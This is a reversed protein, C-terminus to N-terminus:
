KEFFQELDVIKCGTIECSNGEISRGIKFSILLGNNGSLMRIFDSSNIGVKTKEDRFEEIPLAVEINPPLIFTNEPSVKNSGEKPFDIVSKIEWFKDCKFDIVLPSIISVPVKSHNELTLYSCLQASLFRIEMDDQTFNYEKQAEVSRTCSILFLSIFISLANLKNM